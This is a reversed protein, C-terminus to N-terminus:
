RRGGGEGSWWSAGQGDITGRGVIAIDRCDLGWILSQRVDQNLGEVTGAPMLPYDAPDASGLIVAWSDLHLTIGSTLAVTGTLYRGAPVFVTGGGAQRAAAITGAIAATDKTTGDGVAGFDRVNYVGWSPRVALLRGKAGPRGSPRTAKSRRPPSSKKATRRPRKSISM